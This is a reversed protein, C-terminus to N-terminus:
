IIGIIIIDKQRTQINHKIKQEAQKAESLTIERDMIFEEVFIIVRLNIWTLEPLKPIYSM